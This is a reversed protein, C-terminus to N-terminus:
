RHAKSSFSVEGSTCLEQSREWGQLPPSPHAPDAAGSRVPVTQPHSSAGPATAKSCLVVGKRKSRPPQFYQAKHKQLVKRKSTIGASNLRIVAWRSERGM